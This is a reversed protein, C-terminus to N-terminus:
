FAFRVGLQLRRARASQTDINEREGWLYEVGVFTNDIPIWMVNTALYQAGKYTSAPLTPIGSVGNQGYVFSSTWRPTWWHEYGVFWGRAFLGELEGTANIAADLGLGNADQIYRKIGYGVAFTGTIRCKTLAQQMPLLCDSDAPSTGLCAAWPHFDGAFNLGYGAENLKDGVTPQFTLKRVIGALQLHGLQNDYRLHSTFDPMDQIRQGDLRNGAADTLTLDSWPQEMALAIRFRDTVAHTYRVLSQRMAVIGGPGEYDLVNPFADYDMFVSADNGFRWNEIDIYAFRLRLPFSGFESQVNGNFFDVQVYTKVDGCRTDTHTEFDLRTYRPTFNANQGREEPVPISSTVFDDTARMPDFTFMGDLQVFGGWRYSTTSGPLRYSNPISGPVIFQPSDLATTPSMATKNTPVLIPAAPGSLARRRVFGPPGYEAATRPFAGGYQGSNALDFKAPDQANARLQCNAVLLAVCLAAAIFKKQSRM